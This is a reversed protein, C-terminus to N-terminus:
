AFQSHHIKTVVGDMSLEVPSVIQKVTVGVRQNILYPVLINVLPTGPVAVVHTNGILEALDVGNLIYAGDLVGDRVQLRGKLVYTHAASLHKHPPAVYGKKWRYLAVWRGSEPGTWLVKTWAMGPATEIWPEGARVIIDALQDETARVRERGSGEPWTVARCASTQAM